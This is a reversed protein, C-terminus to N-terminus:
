LKVGITLYFTRGNGPLIGPGPYGGSRRTAYVENTLNNVGARLQYIGAWQYTMNWDLVHYEPIQGITSTANPAITNAADTFVASVYNYQLTSSFGRYKFNLGTRLIHKPANEVQKGVLTSNPDNVLAPNDWRTYRADVYAYNGFVSLACASFKPLLKLVDLELYSEIGQSLSAGINTRYAANNVSITGIRNDYFLRFLGVDFKLASKLLSGRFGFDTNYGKADKLNPDIVDTTAAPTLESYTVPRYGQSFNAYFNATPTLTYEAGIGVLVIARDRQQDQIQGTSSTNIYGSTSSRLWEYRIGPTVSLKETIRFMNEAFAAINQTGFTLKAKYDQGDQQTAISLDFDAGTTGIGKQQRNTNGNYFRLGGSLASKQGLLKYEHIGRLEAGVNQYTDCDVQRPNYAAIDTNITDAINIGKMFGVSNRQAVIGFTKFTFRTAVSPTFNLSINATNWPTSFWNRARSSRSPYTAFQEDTLGGAQQSVYNMHTYAATLQWKKSFDYSMSVSGTQTRYQSNERWGQAGRHHMYAYYSFKKIKGGIANFSNFMGYSGMTQSSEVTIPKSGLNKKTVYNLLGGFQPGYQLAGAGRVLEIKDIAETPPTYYAEPYGFVESSIDGGDQRVNFEWSRNPSLGRTAIGTQIGSGDNEWISLGPVKGFLQRSNNTSLDATSAGISIVENKKGSFIDTGQINPLRSMDVSRGLIDRVYIDQITKVRSTDQSIVVTPTTILLLFLIYIAKSMQLIQHQLTLVDAGNKFYWM